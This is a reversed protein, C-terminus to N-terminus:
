GFARGRSRARAEITGTAAVTAILDARNATVSEFRPLSEDTSRKAYAVSAAGIALAIIIAMPAFGIANASVPTLVRKAV